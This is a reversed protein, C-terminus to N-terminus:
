PIAVVERDHLTLHALMRDVQDIEVRGELRVGVVVEEVLVHGSLRHRFLGLGEEVGPFEVGHLELDRAVHRGQHTLM